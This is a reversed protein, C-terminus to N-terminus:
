LREAFIGVKGVAKLVLGMRLGFCSLRPRKKVETVNLLDLGRYRQLRNGGNLEINRFMQMENHLDICLKRSRCSVM